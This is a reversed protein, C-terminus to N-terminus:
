SDSGSGTVRGARASCRACTQSGFLSCPAYRGRRPVNSRTCDSLHPKGGNIIVGGYGRHVHRTDRGFFEPADDKSQTAPFRYDGRLGWRKNPAYWKVGGGVNGTLFTEDGRVGLEAREFMTLGGVGGTAYPVISHRTPVSIVVNAAYSLMNPAKVDSSLDGFQLDSTTAIM